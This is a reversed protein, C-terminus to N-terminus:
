HFLTLSAVVALIAATTAVVVLVARDLRFSRDLADIRASQEPTAGTKSRALIRRAARFDGGRALASAQALASCVPDQPATTASGSDASGHKEDAEM